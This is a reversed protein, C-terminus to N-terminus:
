WLGARLNFIAALPEPLVSGLGGLATVAPMEPAVVRATAPGHNVTPEDDDSSSNYQAQLDRLANPLTQFSPCSPLTACASADQSPAPQHPSQEILPSGHQATMSVRPGDRPRLEPPEAQHEAVPAAATPARRPSGDLGSIISGGTPHNNDVDGGGRIRPVMRPKCARAAEDLVAKRAAAAWVKKQRHAMLAAHEAAQRKKKAAAEAKAAQRQARAEAIAEAIAAQRQAQAEARQHVRQDDAAAVQAVWMDNLRRVGAPLAVARIPVQLANTRLCLSAISARRRLTNTLTADNAWKNSKFTMPQMAACDAFIMQCLM